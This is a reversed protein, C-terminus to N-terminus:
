SGVESKVAMAAAIANLQAEISADIVAIDTSVICAAPSLSSDTIIEINIGLSNDGVRDRMEAQVAAAASPHVTVRLYKARRIDSIARAAAKGVLASVDFEGLVRRVIDLALDVVDKDLSALYRDVKVVTENVLRAAEADGEAKGDQYGQAANNAYALRAADRLRTSERKAADLFAYGSQWAEAEAARIVRGTPAPPLDDFQSLQDSM